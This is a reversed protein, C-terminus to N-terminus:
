WRHRPPRSARKSRMACARPRLPQPGSRIRPPKQDAPIAALAPLTSDADFDYCILLEYGPPLQHRLQRCTAAINGAENYVPMVMSYRLNSEAPTDTM